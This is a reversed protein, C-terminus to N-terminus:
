LRFYLQGEVNVVSRDEVGSFFEKPYNIDYKKMSHNSPYFSYVGSELFLLAKDGVWASVINYYPHEDTINVPLKVDLEELKNEELDFKFISDTAHRSGDKESIEEGFIFINEGTYVAPLSDGVPLGYDKKIVIESKHSSLNYKIYKRHMKDDHSERVGLLYVIDNETYVANSLRYFLLSDVIKDVPKIKSNEYEDSDESVGLTSISSCILVVLIFFIFTKQLKNSIM